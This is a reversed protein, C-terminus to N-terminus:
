FLYASCLYFTGYILAAFIYCKGTLEDGSRINEVVNYKGKYFLTKYLDFVAVFYIESMNLFNKYYFILLFAIAPM